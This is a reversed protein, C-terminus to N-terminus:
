ATLKAVPASDAKNRDKKRPQGVPAKREVAKSNKASLYRGEKAALNEKYDEGDRAMALLSFLILSLVFGVLIGIALVLYSM